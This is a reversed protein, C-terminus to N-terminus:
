QQQGATDGGKGGRVMALAETRTPFDRSAGVVVVVVCSLEAAERKPPALFLSPPTGAEAEAEAETTGPAWSIWAAVAYPLTPLPTVSLVFNIHLGSNLNM